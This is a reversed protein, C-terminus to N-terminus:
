KDSSMKLENPSEKNEFFAIGASVFSSLFVVLVGGVYLLKKHDDGLLLPSFLIMAAPVSTVMFHKWENIAKELREKRM